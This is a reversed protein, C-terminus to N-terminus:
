WEDGLDHFIAQFREAKLNPEKLICFQLKQARGQFLPHFSDLSFPWLIGPIYYHAIEVEEAMLQGTKYTYVAEHAKLSRVYQNLELDIQPTLDKGAKNESHMFKEQMVCAVEKFHEVLEAGDGKTDFILESHESVLRSQLRHLDKKYLIQKSVQDRTQRTHRAEEKMQENAFRDSYNMLRQYAIQADPSFSRFGWFCAFVLILWLLVLSILHRKFM